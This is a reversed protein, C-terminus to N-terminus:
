LWINVRMLLVLSISLRIESSFLETMVWVRRKPTLFSEMVSLFDINSTVIWNKTDEPINPKGNKWNSSIKDFQVM